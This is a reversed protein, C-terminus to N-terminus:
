IPSFKFHKTESIVMTVGPLCAASSHFQLTLDKIAETSSMGPGCLYYRVPVPPRPTNSACSAQTQPPPQVKLLHANGAVPHLIWGFVGANTGPGGNRLMSVGLSFDPCTNNTQKNTNNNNNINQKLSTWRRQKSIPVIALVHEAKETLQLPTNRAHGASKRHPVNEGESLNSFSGSTRECREM